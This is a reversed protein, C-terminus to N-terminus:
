FTFVFEPEMLLRDYAPFCFTTTDYVGAGTRKVGEAVGIAQGYSVGIGINQEKSTEVIQKPYECWGTATNILGRGLKDLCNEAFCPALMLLVVMLVVVGSLLGKM